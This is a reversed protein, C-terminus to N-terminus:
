APAVTKRRHTRLVSPGGHGGAGGANLVGVSGLANRYTALAALPRARGPAWWSTASPESSRRRRPRKSRRAIRNPCMARRRIQGRRRPEARTDVCGSAALACAVLLWRLRSARVTLLRVERACGVQRPAGYIIGGTASSADQVQAAIYTEDFVNTAFAELRLNETPM